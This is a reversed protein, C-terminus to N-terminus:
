PVTQTLLRQFVTWTLEGVSNINTSMGQSNLSLSANPLYVKNQMILLKQSVPM